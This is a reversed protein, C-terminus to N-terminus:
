KIYNKKVFAEKEEFTNFSATKRKSRLKKTKHFKGPKLQTELKSNPHIQRDTFSSMPQHKLVTDNTLKSIAECQTILDQLKRNLNELRLSKVVPKDILATLRSINENYKGTESGQPNEIEKMTEQEMQKTEFLHYEFGQVPGDARLTEKTDVSINSSLLSHVKHFHKCINSQDLCNCGHLHECLGYCALM